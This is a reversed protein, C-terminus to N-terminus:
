LNVRFPYCVCKHAFGPFYMKLYIIESVVSFISIHMSHIWQCHPTWVFNLFLQLIVPWETPMCLINATQHVREREFWKATDPQHTISTHLPRNRKYEANAKHWENWETSISLPWYNLSFKETITYETQQEQMRRLTTSTWKSNPSIYNSASKSWQSGFPNPHIKHCKRKTQMEVEAIRHKEGTRNQPIVLTPRWIDEASACHM